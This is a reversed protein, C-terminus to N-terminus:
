LLERILKHLKTAVVENSFKAEYLQRGAEGIKQLEKPRESAWLITDALDKADAQHVLLCNTEDDFVETAQNEGIVTPMSSALFQYAKGTIVHQAQTTNGFPGALCLQTNAIVGPLDEFTVWSIYNVNLGRKKATHVQAAAEDGGGIITFTIAEHEKLLEAAELVHSLGHLPRMSGYYLVRFNQSDGLRLRQPQFVTEDTSVPIARFNKRPLSMLWASYVAHAKTDSLIVNCRRLLLKYLWHLPPIPVFRAWKEVGPERLWELPNVFEDYILPRPWSILALFPLLEYGRFTLIYIDPRRVVRLLLSRWIMEPYRLLGLHKNKLVLIEFDDFGQLAARLTRARIYDPDGHCTIIAIKM